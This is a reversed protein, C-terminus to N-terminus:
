RSEGKLGQGETWDVKVCAIRKQDKDVFVDAANRSPHVTSNEYEYVNMWCEGSQPEKKEPQSQMMERVIERVRNETLAPATPEDAFAVIDGDFPQCLDM